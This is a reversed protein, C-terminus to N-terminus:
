RLLFFIIAFLGVPWCYYSFVNLKGISLIKILFRLAFYGTIAAIISGIIIYTFEGDQLKLDGKLMLVMAGAIAPIALLFSYRAAEASGVGRYLAVAITTGSRSIGPTIAFGQVTGIILADFIGLEKNNNKRLFSTSWLVTGTVLMMIGALVPQNFLGEFIDKFYLAIIVTPLTGIIVLIFVRTRADNKYIDALKEGSFVNKCSHCVGKFIEFIDKYFVGFIALLTGFHLSIEWIVGQTGADLFSKFIVLHGSSSVPLFETLGQVLGLIITKLLM